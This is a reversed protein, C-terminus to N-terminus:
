CELEIALSENKDPDKKDVEVCKSRSGLHRM